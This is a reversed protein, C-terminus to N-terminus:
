EISEFTIKYNTGPTDLLVITGDIQKVFIDVLKMGLSGKQAKDIGIGNDGLIMEFTNKNIAKLSISIIGKELNSFAYKMSNTIIENIILGIPILTKMNISVDHINTNVMIVAEIQYNDVIEFVLESLHKKVDITKLDEAQYMREHIKAMSTIRLRSEEFKQSIIPDNFERKQFSLLSSVIQFNNKVRHHIEKLLFSKEENSKELEKTREKVKEDLSKYLWANKLSIVCQSILLNLTTIRNETFVNTNINNELYLVGIMENQLKIPLCLVSLIHESNFYPDLTFDHKQQSADNIIVLEESKMVYQVIHNSILAESYPSSELIKYDDSNNDHSAHINWHTNEKVILYSRQAGSNQKILDLFKRLLTELHIEESITHSAKLLSLYDISQSKETIFDTNSTALLNSYTEKLQTLKATAGWKKYISFAQKMYKSAVETLSKNLWFLAYLECALAYENTFGNKCAENIAAEYLLAIKDTGKNEIRAYEARVLDYKHQFNMPANAAWIKMQSQNKELQEKYIIFKQQDTESSCLQILNLSDYFNLLAVPYFGPIYMALKHGERAFTIAKQYQGFLYLVNLKFINYYALAMFNEGINQLYTKETFGNHDFTLPSTTKSQLSAVLQKYIILANYSHINKTKLEYALAIDCKKDLKKLPHGIGYASDLLQYYTFGSQQIEGVDKLLTFAKYSIDINNKVHGVWHQSLISLVHTTLGLGYKYNSKKALNIAIKIFVNGKVYNNDYNIYASNVQSILYSMSPHIGQKPVALITEFTFLHVLSPNIFFVPAVLINFVKTIIIRKKSPVIQTNFLENITQKELLLDLKNKKRMIVKLLDEKPIDYGLESLYSFGIKMASTYNELMSEQNIKAAYTAFLDYPNAQKEIILAYLHDAEKFNSRCFYVEHLIQHLKLSLDFNTEWSDAALLSIGTQAFYQGDEYAISKMAKKAALLNMEAQKIKEIPDHILDKAINLHYLINFLHKEQAEPSLRQLLNQGIKLHTPIKEENALFSYAAKQLSDHVFLFEGNNKTLINSIRAQNLSSLLLEESEDIILKLMELNFVNGICAALKLIHLTKENLDQMQHKLFDVVNESIEYQQLQELNFKWIQKKQDFEISKEKSLSLLIQKTYFPNGQTKNYVLDDITSLDIPGSFREQIMKKVNAKSLNKLKISDINLHEEELKSIMLSLPHLDDVENDRYAGIIHIFTNHEDTLIHHILDLSASDIWQLDDIFVVLPTERTAISRILKVFSNKFRYTAQDGIVQDDYHDVKILKNLIPIVNILAAAEDGVAEQIKVKWKSFAEQPLSLFHVILKKIAQSVASYPINRQFQDYKGSIFYGNEHLVKDKLQNALATKGIGSYGKILVLGPYGEKALSYSKELIKIENERGYLIKQNWLKVPIDIGGIVYKTLKEPADIHQKIYCLDAHLTAISQYRDEPKKHLLKLILDNLPVPISENKVAPAIPVQSIILYNLKLLDNSALPYAGTFMKYLHVGFSYLVSRHDIERNIRGTGEPSQFYKLTLPDQKLKLVNFVLSILHEEDKNDSKIAMEIQKLISLSESLQHRLNEKSFPESIKM